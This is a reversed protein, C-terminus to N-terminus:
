GKAGKLRYDCPIGMFVLRKVRSAIEVKSPNSPVADAM